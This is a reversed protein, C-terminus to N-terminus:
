SALCIEQARKTNYTDVSIMISLKDGLKYELIVGDSSALHIM